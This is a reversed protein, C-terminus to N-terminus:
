RARRVHLASAASARELQVQAWRPKGSWSESSETSGAIATAPTTVGKSRCPLPNRAGTTVLRPAFLALPSGRKTRTPEISRPLATSWASPLMSAVRGSVSRGPTYSTDIASPARCAARLAARSTTAGRSTARAAGVSRALPSSCDNEIASVERAGETCTAMSESLTVGPPVTATLPSSRGEKRPTSGIVAKPLASDIPSSGISHSWGDAPM